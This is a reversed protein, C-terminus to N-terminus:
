YKIKEVSKLGKNIKSALLTIAKETAPYAEEPTAYTDQYFPDTRNNGLYLGAFVIILISAAIGAIWRIPAKRITKEKAALSDIHSSIRQELGDYMSLQCFFAKEKELEPVIKESNFYHKLIREEEENTQGDYFHELLKRIENVDM